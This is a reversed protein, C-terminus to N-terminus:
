KKKLNIDVYLQLIGFISSSPEQEVTKNYTVVKLYAFTMVFQRKEAEKCSELKNLQLM